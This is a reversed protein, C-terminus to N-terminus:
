RPLRSWAPASSDAAVVDVRQSERLIPQWSLIGREEPRHDGHVAVTEAHQGIRDVAKQDVVLRLQLVARVAREREIEGILLGGVRGVAIPQRRRFPLLVAEREPEVPRRFAHRVAGIIGGGSILRHRSSSSTIAIPAAKGFPAQPEEDEAHEQGEADDRM